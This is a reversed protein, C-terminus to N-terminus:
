PTVNDIEFTQVSNPPFWAWFKKGNQLKTDSAHHQYREGKPEGTHTTAWRRVVGKNGDVRAFGSLDYGVYQGKKAWSATVIVLKREDRDYAVVTNEDKGPDIIQMGPLIHRSYQAFVFLKAHDLGALKPKTEDNADKPYKADIFGWHQEKDPGARGDIPQWYAWGRARAHRIDANINAAMMMGSGDHDGYETTWIPGGVARDLNRKDQKHQATPYQTLYGGGPNYGHANVRGINNHLGKLGAWTKAAQAYTNEDSAAMTTSRLGREDLEKRLEILVKRQTAVDFGRGEQNGKERWFGSMPENFPEVSAFVVGWKEKAHQAIEALYAAHQQEAGPTLNPNPKGNDAGTTDRDELMWWMPSNAFLEFRDAGRAKALQLMKRQSKDKSWDWSDADTQFGEVAKYTPMEPSAAMGKGCGGANYRVINMDLGPVSRGDYKVRKRTFLIDALEDAKSAGGFANAWWALSAGWGEWIQWKGKPNITTWYSAHATTPAM